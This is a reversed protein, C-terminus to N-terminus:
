SARRRRKMVASVAGAALVAGLAIGAWLPWGSGQRTATGRQQTLQEVSPPQSDIGPSSETPTVEPSNQAQASPLEAATTPGTPATGAAPPTVPVGGGPLSPPPNSPLTGGSRPAGQTAGGQHTGDQTTGGQTTGGQTAGGQKPTPSSPPASAVTRVIGNAVEGPQTSNPPKWLSIYGNAYTQKVHIGEPGGAAGYSIQVPPSPVTVQFTFFQASDVDTKSPSVQPGSWHLIRRAGATEIGCTWNSVGTGLQRYGTSALTSAAGCAPNTWDSPLSVQVDVTTNEAGNFIVGEQEFPLFMNLTPRSGAAYPPTQGGAGTGGFPNPFGPADNSFVPHAFAPLALAVVTAFVLGIVTVARRWHTGADNNM